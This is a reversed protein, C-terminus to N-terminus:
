VSVGDRAQLPWLGPQRLQRNALRPPGPNLDKRARWNILPKCFHSGKVRTDALSPQGFFRLVFQSFKEALGDQSAVSKTETAPYCRKLSSRRRNEARDM